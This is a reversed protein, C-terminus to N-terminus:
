RSEEPVELPASLRDTRMWVPRQGRRLGRCIGVFAALNVMSFYYPVRFLLGDLAPFRWATLALLYFAIQACTMVTWFTSGLMGIFSALLATILFLPVLWRLLKHSVYIWLLRWQGFRPVGERALVSQISSAIIRTKRGFEQHDNPTPNEEAIAEPDYIMRLGRRAVNMATVLDDVVLENRAPDLQSRRFAYMAGDIAVTSWFDSELAQLASEYRYYLGEGAGFREESPLIRVDGTVVGVKPNVFHRVLKRIADPRYYTNADSLVLIEGRCAEFGAALAHLKGRREAAMRVHVQDSRYRNLIENTRDTSGDSIFVFQIKKPPYDIALCNRLKEEIVLEENYAAVVLSVTPLKEEPLDPPPNKPRGRTLALLCLPFGAYVYIILLCSLWFALEILLM